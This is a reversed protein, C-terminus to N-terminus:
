KLNISPVIKNKMNEIKKSSKDGSNLNSAINWFVNEKSQLATQNRRISEQNPSQNESQLYFLYNFGNQTKRRENQDISLVDDELDNNIDIGFTHKQELKRELDNLKELDEFHSNISIESRGREKESRESKLNWIESRLNNLENSLKEYVGDATQIDEISMDKDEKWEQQEEKLRKLEMEVEQRKIREQLIEKDKLEGQADLEKLKDEFSKCKSTFARHIMEVEKNKMELEEQKTALESASVEKQISLQSQLESVQSSLSSEVEATESQSSLLQHELHNSKSHSEDLLSQLNHISERQEQILREANSYKLAYEKSQKDAAELHLYKQHLLSYKEREQELLLSYYHEIEDKM